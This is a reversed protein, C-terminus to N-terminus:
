CSRPRRARRITHDNDIQGGHVKCKLRRCQRTRGTTTRGDADSQGVREVGPEKDLSQSPSPEISDFNIADGLDEVFDVNLCAVATM